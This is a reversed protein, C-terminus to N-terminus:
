SQAEIAAFRAEIKSCKSCTVDAATLNAFPLGAHQGQTIGCVPYAQFLVPKGGNRRFQEGFTGRRSQSPLLGVIWTTRLRHVKQGSYRGRNGHAASGYEVRTELIYEGHFNTTM